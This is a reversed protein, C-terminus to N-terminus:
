ALHTCRCVPHTSNVQPETRSIVTDPMHFFMDKFIDEMTFYSVFKKM